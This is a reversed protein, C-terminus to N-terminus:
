GLRTLQELLAITGFGGTTSLLAKLVPDDTIGSFAGRKENEIASLATQLRKMPISGPEYQRSQREVSERVEEVTKRRWERASFRLVFAAYAIVVFCAVFVVILAPPWDWNDFVPHRTLALLFVASFPLYIMRDVHRSLDAALRVRLARDLIRLDDATPENQSNNWERSLIGARWRADRSEFLADIMWDCLRTIDFVLFLLALLALVSFWLTALSVGISLPGRGPTHARGAFAFVVLFLAFWLVILLIVRPVRATWERLSQFELWLSEPPVIRGSVRPLLALSKLDVRRSDPGQKTTKLEDTEEIPEFYERIINKNIRALQQLIYGVYGICLVGVGFRLLTTPWVSIGGFWVFQEGRPNGHDAVAAWILAVVAIAVLWVIAARLPWWESRDVSSFPSRLDHWVVSLLKRLPRVAPVVLLLALIGILVVLAFQRRDLIGLSRPSAPHPFEERVTSLDYAGYRSIEFMRSAAAKERQEHDSSPNERHNPDILGMARRVAFFASTQYTDRFSAIPRQYRDDLRLGFASAVVLNHTWSWEAPHVLRADLDTTFFVAGPFSPRLARLILLKDYVDSGFIGIAAIESQDRALRNSEARLEDEIRSLYDAQSRGEARPEHSADTLKTLQDQASKTSGASPETSKTEIPALGDIGRLYTLAITFRPAQAANRTSAPPLDGDREDALQSFESALSRGYKTDFESLIVIKDGNGRAPRSAPWARRLKLEERLDLCLQNDGAMWRDIGDQSDTRGMTAWPSVIRVDLHGSQGDDPAQLARVPKELDRLLNSSVPGILRMRTRTWGARRSDADLERILGTVVGARADSTAAASASFLTDEDIWLVLVNSPEFGGDEAVTHDGIDDRVFREFPVIQRPGTETSDARAGRRIYRIHQADESVFKDVGLAAVVAYRTRRRLEASEPYADGVVFVPLILIDRDGGDAKSLAAGWPGARAGCLRDLWAALCRPLHAAGVPPVPPRAAAEDKRTRAARYAVDLPDQWLRADVKGDTIAEWSSDGAATPRSSVLSPRTVVLGIAVLLSAIAGPWILLSRFDPLGDKM